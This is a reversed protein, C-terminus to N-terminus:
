RADNRAAEECCLPSQSKASGIAEHPSLNSSSATLTASPKRNPNSRQMGCWQWQPEVTLREHAGYTQRELAMKLIAKGCERDVAILLCFSVPKTAV